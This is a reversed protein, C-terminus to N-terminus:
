GRKKPNGRGTSLGGHLRCKEKGPVVKAKCMGGTRTEAGCELRGAKPGCYCKMMVADWEEPTVKPADQLELDPWELLADNGLTEFLADDVPSTAILRELLADLEARLKTEEGTDM